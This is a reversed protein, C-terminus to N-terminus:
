GSVLKWTAAKTALTSNCKPWGRSFGLTTLGESAPELLWLFFPMDPNRLYDDLSHNAQLWAEQIVDSADIRGQLKRNLRLRVMRKLRGRHRNLLEELASRDGHTLRQVLETDGGAHQPM